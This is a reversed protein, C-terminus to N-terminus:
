PTDTPGILDTVADAVETVTLEPTAASDDLPVNWHEQLTLYLEVVALSDLDLGGLTSEPHIQEAPADFKETLLTVLHQYVPDM